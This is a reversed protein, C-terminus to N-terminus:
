DGMMRKRFDARNHKAVEREILSSQWTSIRWYRDHWAQYDAEDEDTWKLGRVKTESRRYLIADYERVIYDKIECYERLTM